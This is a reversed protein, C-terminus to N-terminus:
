YKQLCTKSDRQHADVSPISDGEELGPTMRGVELWVPTPGELLQRQFKFGSIVLCVFLNVPLCRLGLDPLGPGLEFM